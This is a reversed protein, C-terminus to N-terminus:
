KWIATAMIETLAAAILIESDVSHTAKFSYDALLIVIGPISQPQLLTTANDYLDRFLVNADVDPNQAVWKRMETFNKAKLLEILDKIASKSKDQLIGADISGGASYRQLENLTRRFDPFHKNVLEAVVRKDYQVNEADLISLVRKFFQAALKPKETGNGGNFDITTTRSIIADIIKNKHNCTFFFRINKFEEIVGRLADQGARSVGDFEDFLIVKQKSELSVTSAYQMVKTRVTDIGSDLSANIFLLEMDADNILARILTTKGTGAAGAMLCHPVSGSQVMDKFQKRVADTLICDDITKPRYKEAWVAQELNM